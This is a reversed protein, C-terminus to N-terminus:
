GAPRSSTEAVTRGWGNRTPRGSFRLGDMSVRGCGDFPEARRYRVRQSENSAFFFFSLFIVFSETSDQSCERNKQAIPGTQM